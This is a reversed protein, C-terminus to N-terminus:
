PVESVAPFKELQVGTSDVCAPYYLLYSPGLFLDGWATYELAKSTPRTPLDDERSM